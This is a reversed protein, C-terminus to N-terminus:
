LGHLWIASLTGVGHPSIISLINASNNRHIATALKDRKVGLFQMKLHHWNSMQVMQLATLDSKRSPWFVLATVQQCNGAAQTLFISWNAAECSSPLSHLEHLLKSIHHDLLYQSKRCKCLSCMTLLPFSWMGCYLYNWHKLATDLQIRNM